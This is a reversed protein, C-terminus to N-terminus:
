KSAGQLSRVIPAAEVHPVPDYAAVPTEADWDEEDAPVSPQYYPALSLDGHESERIEYKYGEVIRRDPCTSVHYQYDPKDVHHIANFPCVVKNATPYNKKCKVIHGQMRSKLIVHSSNYPCQILPDEALMKTGAFNLFNMSDISTCIIKCGCVYHIGTGIHYIHLICSCMCFVVSPVYCISWYVCCCHSICVMGCHVCNECIKHKTSRADRYLRTFLGTQHM